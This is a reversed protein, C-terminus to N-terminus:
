RYEIVLKPWLPSDPHHATIIWYPSEGGPAELVMFIVGFNGGRQWAPFAGTLDFTYYGPSLLTHQDLPVTDYDEGPQLGPEAWPDSFTASAADWEHELRYAAITVPPLQRGVWRVDVDFYLSLHAADVHSNAPLPGLDFRLLADVVSNGGLNVRAAPYQSFPLLPNVPGRGDHLDVLLWWDDSVQTSSTMDPHDSVIWTSQVAAPGTIALEQRPSFPRHIWLLILGVLMALALPPLLKTRGYRPNGVPLPLEDPTEATAAQAPPSFELAPLPSNETIARRLTLTEASLTEDLGRHRLRALYGGYQRLAGARDGCLYRLSMVLRLAAESRPDESLLREAAKLAAPYARDCVRLEILRNLSHLYQERLRARELLLWEEALDPLLDGRYLALASELQECDDSSVSQSFQAVDLWCDAGPNWRLSRNEELLWPRGPPAPPLQGRLVSLSQRLRARAERESLDSWLTFALQDRHVPRCSHLLLYAWLAALGSPVPLLTSDVGAQFGGLLHIRLM